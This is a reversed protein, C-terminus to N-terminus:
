EFTWSETVEETVIRKIPELRDNLQESGNEFTVYESLNTLDADRQPYITNLPGTFTETMIPYGAIASKQQIESTEITVSKEKEVAKSPIPISVFESLETKLMESKPELHTIEGGYAETIAPYQPSHFKTRGCTLCALLYNPRERPLQEKHLTAM